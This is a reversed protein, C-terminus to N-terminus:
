TELPTGLSKANSILKANVTCISSVLTEGLGLEEVSVWNPPLPLM